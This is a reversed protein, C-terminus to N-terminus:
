ASSVTWDTRVQIGQEVTKEDSAEIVTQVIGGSATRTGAELRPRAPAHALDVLPYVRGDPLAGGEADVLRRFGDQGLSGRLGVRPSKTLACGAGGGGGGGGSTLTRSGSLTRRGGGAGAGRRAGSSRALSAPLLKRFLPRMIPLCACTIMLAPELASLVDAPM